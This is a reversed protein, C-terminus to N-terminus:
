IEDIRMLGAQLFQAHHVILAHTQDRNCHVRSFRRRLLGLRHYPSRDVPDIHLTKPHAGLMMVSPELLLNDLLEDASAFPAGLDGM